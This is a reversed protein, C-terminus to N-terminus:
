SMVYVNTGNEKQIETEIEKDTGFASNELAYCYKWQKSAFSLYRGVKGVHRNKNKVELENKGVGQRKQM